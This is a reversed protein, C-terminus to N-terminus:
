SKYGMKKKKCLRSNAQFELKIKEHSFQDCNDILTISWCLLSRPCKWEEFRGLYPRIISQFVQILSLIGKLIKAQVTMCLIYGTNQPSLYPSRWALVLLLSQTSISSDICDEIKLPLLTGLTFAVQLNIRELPTCSIM